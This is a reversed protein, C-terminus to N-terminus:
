FHGCRDRGWTFAKDEAMLVPTSMDDFFVEVRGTSADRTVKVDHWGEGWPIGPSKNKTIM